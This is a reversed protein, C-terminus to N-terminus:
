NEPNRGDLVLFKVPRFLWWRAFWPWGRGQVFRFAPAVIAASSEADDHTRDRATAQSGRPTGSAGGDHLPTPWADANGPHGGTWVNSGCSRKRPVLRPDDLAPHMASRPEGRAGDVVLSASSASGDAMVFSMVGLSCCCNM